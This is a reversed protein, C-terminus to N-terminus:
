RASTAVTWSLNFKDNGAIFTANVKDHFGSGLRGCSYCDAQGLENQVPGGPYPTQQQQFSHNWFVNAAITGGQGLFGAKFRYDFQTDLGSVLYSGTNLNIANVRTIYGASNRIV